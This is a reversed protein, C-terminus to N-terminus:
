HIGAITDIKALLHISTGHQGLRDRITKIDASSSVFPVALFDIVTCQSIAILDETDAATIIELQTHKGGTFRVNCKSRITGGIKIDMKIGTEFIESVIGVVKGDDFYIVDNPKM